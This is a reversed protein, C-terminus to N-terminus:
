DTPLWTPNAEFFEKVLRKVHDVSKGRTKLQRSKRQQIGARHDYVVIRLEAKATPYPVDAHIAAILWGNADGLFAQPWGRPSFSRYRGTPKPQVRWVIKAM